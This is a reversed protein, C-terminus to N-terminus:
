LLSHATCQGIAPTEVTRKAQEKPLDEYMDKLNKYEGKLKQLQRSVEATYNMSVLAM